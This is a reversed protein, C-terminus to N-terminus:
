SATALSRTKSFTFQRLYEPGTGKFEIFGKAIEAINKSTTGGNQVPVQSHLLDLDFYSHVKKGLVIGVYVVTSFQTILESCNAIMADTPGDTYILTNAPAHAKIEAIAREKIENPHLKFILQRGAAITVANRIFEPRNDRRYCERIDSTAVLVYDKYPFDNTLCTKLNDFNPIGTVIIKSEDTGMKAIYKKYGESGACYIDCINSSGNLATGIALYRPLKFFKTIKAAITMEDIMGEQVWITKVGHLAKPVIIDTCAIVLDYRNNYVETRYDNRLNHERLYQDAKAKLEGAMVTHDLLGLIITGLIMFHNAFVQSFYCDFDDSLFTSIQHMQATQNPSGILFIIKKKSM